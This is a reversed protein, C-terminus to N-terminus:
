GLPLARVTCILFPADRWYNGVEAEAQVFHDMLRKKTVLILGVADILDEVSWMRELDDVARIEERLRTLREELLRIETDQKEILYVRSPSL